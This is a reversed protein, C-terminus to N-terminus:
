GRGAITGVVQDGEHVHVYKVTVRKQGTKGKLKQVAPRLLMLGEDNAAIM